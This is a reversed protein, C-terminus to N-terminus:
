REGWKRGQCWFYDDTPAYDELVMQMPNEECIHDGEGIPMLNMCTECCKNVSKCKKKKM